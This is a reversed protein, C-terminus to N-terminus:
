ATKPHRVSWMYSLCGATVILSSVVCIVAGEGFSGINPTEPSIKLVQQTYYSERLIGMVVSVVANTHMLLFVLNVFAIQLTSLKTGIFYAILLYGTIMTLQWQVGEMATDIAGQAAQILEFETMM